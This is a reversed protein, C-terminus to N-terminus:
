SPVKNILWILALGRGSDLFTNLTIYINEGTLDVEKLEVYKHDMKM